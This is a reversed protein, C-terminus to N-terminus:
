RNPSDQKGSPEPDDQAQHILIRAGPGEAALVDDPNRLPCDALSLCGCGICGGLEDRLQLLSTIRQNLMDHWAQSIHQWDEQSIAKDPLKDLHAKITKLPIGARKAIRIIAIRRLVGRGYRRQNGNSRASKILGKDEYYHITSVAVGSRKAVEGVSLVRPASSVKPM